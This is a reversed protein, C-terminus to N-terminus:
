RLAKTVATLCAAFLAQGKPDTYQAEGYGLAALASRTVALPDRQGNAVALLTAVRTVATVTHLSATLAKM